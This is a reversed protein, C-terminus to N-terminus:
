VSLAFGTINGLTIFNGSSDLSAINTGNYNFYLKTGSPIASWGGAVAIKSLSNTSNGATTATAANGGISLGAATGTLGTGPGSFATTATVNAFTPTGSTALNQINSVTVTSGSTSTTVGNLGNITLTGGGSFSAGGANTNGVLSVTTSVGTNAISTIRGTQDVTLSPIQTSGGYTGSVVGTTSNTTLVPYYNLSNVDLLDWYKSAENWRITALSNSPGRYVNITANNGTTATASLSFTNPTYVITNQSNIQGGVTLTNQVYASSGLGAVQFTANYINVNGNSRLVEGTGNLILVGSDKTYNAKGLANIENSLSNTAVVWDGFTNAYNLSSVTNAM